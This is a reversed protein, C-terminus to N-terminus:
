SSRLVLTGYEQSDRDDGDHGQGPRAVQKAQGFRVAGQDCGRSAERPDSRRWLTAYAVPEPEPRGRPGQPPKPGRYIILGFM